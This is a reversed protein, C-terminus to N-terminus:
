SQCEVAAIMLSRSKTRWSGPGGANPSSGLKVLSSVVAAFRVVVMAALRRPARAPRGVTTAIVVGCAVAVALAIVIPVFVDSVTLDPNHCAVM